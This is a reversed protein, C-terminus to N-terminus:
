KYRAHDLFQFTSWLLVQAKMEFFVLRLCLTHHIEEVSVLTCISKIACLQEACDVADMLSKIHKDSIPSDSVLTMREILIPIDSKNM